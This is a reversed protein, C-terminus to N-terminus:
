NGKISFRDLSYYKEHTRKWIIRIMYKFRVFPRALRGARRGKYERIEDDKKIFSM